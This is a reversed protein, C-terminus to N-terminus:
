LQYLRWKWIGCNKKSDRSFDPYKDRKESEKLKVRHDAPVAFNVIRCTEKTTTIVIIIIVKSATSHFCWHWFQFYIGKDLIFDHLVSHWWILFYLHNLFIVSIIQDEVLFFDVGLWFFFSSIKGPILIGKVRIERRNSTKNTKIKNQKEKVQVTEEIKNKKKKKTALISVKIGKM